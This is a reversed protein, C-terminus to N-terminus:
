WRSALWAATDDIAVKAAFDALDRARSADDFAVDLDPPLVPELRAYREGLLQRCRFDAVGMNAELMIHMLPRAWQAIGWDHTEGPVYKHRVGSGVSLLVVSALDARDAPANRDDLAQALAAMSPNNAVVGGDVYGQYTPFYTPAASTRLAVDVIREDGASDGGPFNHFLKPRWTREAPSPAKDDLQFTPIAVRKALSALTRDGFTETLIEKLNENSYEAGITGGLDRVDALISDSFIESGRQLYLKALADPTLGSALGLAIIGGTSTGAFLDVEALFGTAEDLRALLTATLVGRIGGGDLALIRM